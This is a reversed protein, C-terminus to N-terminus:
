QCPFQWCHRLVTQQHDTPSKKGVSWDKGLFVAKLAVFRAGSSRFPECSVALLHLCTLYVSLSRCIPQYLLIMRYSCLIVSLAVCTDHLTVPQSTCALMQAARYLGQSKMLNVGFPMTKEKRKKEKRKKEKRKKEKRQLSASLSGHTMEVACCLLPLPSTCVVISLLSLLIIIIIMLIIIIITIM